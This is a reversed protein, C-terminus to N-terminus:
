SGLAFPKQIFDIDFNKEFDGQPPWFDSLCSITWMEQFGKGIDMDMSFILQRVM